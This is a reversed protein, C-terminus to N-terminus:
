TMPINFHKLLLGRLAYRIKNGMTPEEPTSYVFIRIFKGLLFDLKFKSLDNLIKLKNDLNPHKFCKNFYQMAEKMNKQIIM